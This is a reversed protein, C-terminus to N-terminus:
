RSMFRNLGVRSGLYGLALGLLLPLAFYYSSVLLFHPFRYSFAVTLLWVVLSAIFGGIGGQLVGQILYPRRIFGRTAGVLSMIEINRRQAFITLRLTNAILVIAALLVFLFLAIDTMIIISSYRHVMSFLTAHNITEDVGEVAAIRTILSSLQGSSYNERSMKVQFSPPLPNEGLIALPDSGFEDRFVRLADESSVFQVTEVGKLELLKKEIRLIDKQSLGAELFVEVTMREQLSKVLRNANLTIILFLGFLTLTVAVASIAIMNALRARRLGVVGERISYLVNMSM